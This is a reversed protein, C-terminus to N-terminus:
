DQELLSINTEEVPTIPSGNFGFKIDSFTFNNDKDFSFFNISAALAIPVVSM